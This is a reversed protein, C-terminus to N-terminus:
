KISGGKEDSYLAPRATQRVIEPTVGEIDEARPPPWWGGKKLYERHEPTVGKAWDARGQWWDVWIRLQDDTTALAPANIELVAAIQDARDCPRMEQGKTM